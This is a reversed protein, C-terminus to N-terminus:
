VREREVPYVRDILVVIWVALVFPATLTVLGAKLGAYQLIISIAMALLALVGRRKRHKMEVVSEIALFTLISNYGYLGSNVSDTSVVSPILVVLLSLLMAIVSQLAMARSNVLIALLFLLGTFLSGEQLMIQGYSLSMASLINVSDGVSGSQVVGDDLLLPKVFIILWTILVFPATLTPLLQQRTFLHTVVTSLAAGLLLFIISLYSFPMFCIVAIGVLTGNFGYLGRRIAERDYGLVWATLTSACVGGMAALGMRWSSLFVGLLMLAGSLANEQFMVQGVGKLLVKLTVQIRNWADM